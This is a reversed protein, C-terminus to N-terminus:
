AAYEHDEVVTPSLPLRAGTALGVVLMAVAVLLSNRVGIRGAVAGWGSSGFALGGQFVLIYIALARARLSAPPAMQACVNFTTMVTMWAVGGMLMALAMLAFQQILALAATALAFM